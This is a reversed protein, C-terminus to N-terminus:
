EERKRKMMAHYYLLHTNREDHIEMDSTIMEWGQEGLANLDKLIESWPVERRNYAMYEWKKVVVGQNTCVHSVSHTFFLSGFTM